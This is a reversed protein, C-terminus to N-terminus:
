AGQTCLCRNTPARNSYITHTCMNTTQPRGHTGVTMMDIAGGGEMRM